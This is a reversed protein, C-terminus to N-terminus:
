WGPIQLLNYISTADRSSPTFCCLNLMLTSFPQIKFSNIDGTYSHGKWYPDAYAKTCPICSCPGKWILFSLVKCLYSNIYTYDSKETQQKVLAKFYKSEVVMKSKESSQAHLLLIDLLHFFCRSITIIHCREEQVNPTPASEKGFSPNIQQNRGRLPLCSPPQEKQQTPLKLSNPGKWNPLAQIVLCLMIYRGLWKIRQLRLVLWNINGDGM